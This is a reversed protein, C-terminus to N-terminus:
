IPYLISEMEIIKPFLIDNELRTLRLWRNELKVLNKFIRDYLVQYDVPIEEQTLLEMILKFPFKESKHELYMKQISPCASKLGAKLTNNRIAKAYRKAFPLVTLAEKKLHKEAKFACNMFILHAESLKPSQTGQYIVLMMFDAETESIIALIDDHFIKVYDALQDAPLYYFEEPKM